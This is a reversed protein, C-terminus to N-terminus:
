DESAYTIMVQGAPVRHEINDGVYVALWPVNCYHSPEGYAVIKTVRSGVSFSTEEETPWVIRTIARDDDLITQIRTEDSM